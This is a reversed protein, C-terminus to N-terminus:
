HWEKLLPQKKIKEVLDPQDELLAHLLPIRKSELYLATVKRMQQADLIELLGVHETYIKMSFLIGVLVERLCKAAHLDHSFSTIEDFQPPLNFPQLRLKIVDQTPMTVKQQLFNMSYAVHTTFFLGTVAMLIRKM